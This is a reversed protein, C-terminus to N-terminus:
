ERLIGGDTKGKSHTKYRHTIKYCWAKTMQFVTAWQTKRIKWIIVRDNSWIWFFFDVNTLIVASRRLLTKLHQFTHNLKHHDIGTKWFKVKQKFSWIKKFGRIKIMPLWHHWNNGKLHHAWNIWKWSFAQWLGWDSIGYNTLWGRLPLPHKRFFASTSIHGEWKTASFILLSM